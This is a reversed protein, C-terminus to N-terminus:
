SLVYQKRCYTRSNGGDSRTVPAQVEREAVLHWTGMSKDSAESTFPVDLSSNIHL